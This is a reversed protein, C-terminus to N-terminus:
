WFSIRKAANWSIKLGEVVKMTEGNMIMGNSM